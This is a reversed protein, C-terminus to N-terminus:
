GLLVAVNVFSTTRAMTTADTANGGSIVDPSVQEFM